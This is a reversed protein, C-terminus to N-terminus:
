LQRYAQGRLGISFCTLRFLCLLFVELVCLKKSKIVAFASFFNAFNNPSSESSEDFSKFAKTRYAKEIQFRRSKVNLIDYSQTEYAAMKFRLIMRSMQM